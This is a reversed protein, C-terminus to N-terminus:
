RQLPLIELRKDYHHRFKAPCYRINCLLFLICSSCSKKAFPSKGVNVFAYVNVNKELPLGEAEWSQSKRNYHGVVNLKLSMREIFDTFKVRIFSVLNM